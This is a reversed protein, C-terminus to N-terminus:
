QSRQKQNPIFDTLEGSLLPKRRVEVDVFIIASADQMRDASAARAFRCICNRPHRKGDADYDNLGFQPVKGRLSKKM